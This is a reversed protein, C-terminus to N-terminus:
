TSQQYDDCGARFARVRDVPDAQPHGLVIVPAEGRWRDLGAEDALVVDPRRERASVLEFGDRRLHRELSARSDDRDVLLLATSM